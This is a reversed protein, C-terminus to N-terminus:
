QYFKKVRRVSVVFKINIQIVRESKRKGKKYAKKFGSLFNICSFLHETAYPFYFALFDWRSLSFQIAYLVHLSTRRGGLGELAGLAFLDFM